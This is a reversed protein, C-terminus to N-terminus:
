KKDSKPYIFRKAEQNVDKKPQKNLRYIASILKEMKPMRWVSRAYTHPNRGLHHKNSKIFDKVDSMFLSPNHETKQEWDQSYRDISKNEIIYKIWEEELDSDYVQNEDDTDFPVEQDRLFSDYFEPHCDAYDEPTYSEAQEWDYVMVVEGEDNVNIELKESAPEWFYPFAQSHNEQTQLEKSFEMLSKYDEDSIRITKM